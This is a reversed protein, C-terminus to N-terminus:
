SHRQESVFSCEVYRISAVTKMSRFNVFNRECWQVSRNNKEWMNYVNLYTHFDGYPHSLAAHAQRAREHEEASNNNFGANGGGSSSNQGFKQGSFTPNNGYKNFNMQLRSEAPNQQPAAKQAFRAERSPPPPTIWISEASLM